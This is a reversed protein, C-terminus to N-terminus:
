SNRARGTLECFAWGFFAGGLYGIALNAVLAFLFQHSLMSSASGGHWDTWQEILNALVLPIGFLAPGYKWIVDRRKMPRLRM